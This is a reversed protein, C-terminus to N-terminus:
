PTISKLEPLLKNSNHEIIVKLLRKYELPSIEHWGKEPNEAVGPAKEMAYSHFYFSPENTVTITRIEDPSVAHILMGEPTGYFKPYM